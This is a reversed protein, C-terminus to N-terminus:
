KEGNKIVYTIKEIEAIKQEHYSTIIQEITKDDGCTFHTAKRFAGFVCYDFAGERKMEVYLETNKIKLFYIEKM